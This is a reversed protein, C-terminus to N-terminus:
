SALRVLRALHESRKLAMRAAFSRTGSRLGGFDPYEPPADWYNEAAAKDAKSCAAAARQIRIRIKM